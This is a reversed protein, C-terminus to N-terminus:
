APYYKINMAEVREDPETMTAVKTLMRRTREIDEIKLEEASGLRDM